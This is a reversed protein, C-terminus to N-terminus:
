QWRLLYKELRTMGRVVAVGLLSLLLLLAFVGDIHFTSSLYSLTQGLGHESAIIEGGVVGLLAYILGLRLGSFIVPVAGPLTILFFLQSPTAGLTRSLTVHDPNIGRIGAVTSSLVIFFTLSFGVAIKSGVGLGFWLIFLPALAIRPMANLASFYPELFYEIKPYMVFLLAVTVASVSGLVFASLTGLATWGFDILLKPSAFLNDWLYHSIGSPSGFFAPNLMKQGAAWEWVVLLGTVFILHPWFERFWNGRVSDM